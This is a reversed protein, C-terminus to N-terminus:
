PQLRVVEWGQGSRRYAIRDHMRDRRGEWFEILTATVAYGGWYAPCPVPQDGYQLKLRELQADLDARSAVVNSQHSALAGFQSARPRSTFYSRSLERPLKEVTGEVRIQRELKDWWFVLAVNPNAALERGKRGQYNTYFTLKGQHMGKYLVMRASPKHDATVTALTMANPEQMGATVAGLVWAEIQALPDTLLDSELLPPNKTYQPM